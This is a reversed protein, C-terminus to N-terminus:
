HTRLHVDQARNHSSNIFIIRLDAWLEMEYRDNFLGTSFEFMWGAIGWILNAKDKFNHTM